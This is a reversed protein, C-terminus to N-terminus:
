ALDHQPLARVANAAPDRWRNAAVAARRRLSTSRQWLSPSSKPERLGNFNEGDEFIDEDRNASAQITM